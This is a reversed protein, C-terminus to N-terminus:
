KKSKASRVAAQAAALRAIPVRFPSCSVYDLGVEHLFAVTKPEGGQEGCIGIKLNPRTARGREVAFKILEGVGEQDLVQFPDYPLIGNELYSPLFKGIDDRSYGFTMQTLDNTGFSFFEATKAISGAQLAARPVEIMTGVRHPVRVGAEKMVQEAVRRVLQEQNKLEAATGVLPVMVDLQVAGGSQQVRVAAEFMARVQMETIEPYTIGLRCGRFGLMPNVEQLKEITSYVEDVSIGADRALAECVDTMEGDPLFEHLPPDLLRITVPLGSMAKLIGEFDERQFPLLDALAKLRAEKTQAVIMRRVTAIREESAFFMHETRCLGIGEAGFKRAEEADEPTDANTLVGLRRRADVWSMFKGLDGALEPPALPQKGRIIEGTSGNLSIFDGQRIEHGNIRAIKNHEDVQLDPCGTICPKGWGRAVVAAHSTMGGLQCLVGEASYMGKVDEPSTERRVLVVPLGSSKWAEADEASFVAQGVAAGPSAPLGTGLVDGKYADEDAFQPHLLQDLHGPEVMMVATDIDVLGEDVLEVAIRVAAAGTRKGSRCQLMYLKGEQVTFEIDQMDKYHKELLACNDILQQYAGPLTRALTEIPEPTRIGAVVDEGQANILYEGYLKREGTSPNRTFCVGTGSTLGMNGFAMAQVNVATGKLGTIGNVSRYVDARESQWSDFVAYIALRLQEYPDEPFIKGLSKYVEKYRGVLLKLDAATLATDESVRREAKLRELQDEFLHHPIGMVVDGYMDLFRRYADYAFREDGSRKALGAACTDNLGLNLVTDMMGPMSVAAGSRVSLLLPASADGLRCGMEAEVTRLGALVEEWCGDPLTRGNEHFEACTDTTITLGPPVSLGIRSMEALNAGKGGLLQKMSADGQSKTKGFTYVRQSQVMTATDVTAASPIVRDTRLKPQFQKNLLGSSLAGPQQEASRAAATKRRVPGQARLPPAVVKGAALPLSGCGAPSHLLHKQM